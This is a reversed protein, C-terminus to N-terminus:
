RGDRKFAIKEGVWIWIRGASGVLLAFISIDIATHVWAPLDGGFLYYHLWVNTIVILSIFSLAILKTPWTIKKEDMRDRLQRM